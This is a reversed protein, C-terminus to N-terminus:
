FKHTNQRTASGGSPIQGLAPRSRRAAGQTPAQRARRRSRLGDVHVVNEAGDPKRRHLGRRLAQLASSAEYVYFAHSTTKMGRFLARASFRQSSRAPPQRRSPRPPDVHGTRIAPGWAYRWRCTRPSHKGSRSPRQRRVSRTRLMLAIHLVTMMPEASALACLSCSPSLGSKTSFGGNREALSRVTEARVAGAIRRTTDSVPGLGEAGQHRVPKRLASGAAPAPEASRRPAM